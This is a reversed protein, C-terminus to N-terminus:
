DQATKIKYKKLLEYFDNKSDNNLYYMIFYM